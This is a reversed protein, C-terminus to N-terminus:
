GGLIPTNTNQVKSICDQAMILGETEKEKIQKPTYDRSLKKKIFMAIEICNYGLARSGLIIRADVIRSVETFPLNEKTMLSIAYNLYKIRDEPMATSIPFEEASAKRETKEKLDKVYNGAEELSNFQHDKDEIIGFKDENGQKV